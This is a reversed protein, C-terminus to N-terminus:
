GWFGFRVMTTRCATIKLKAQIDQGTVRILHTGLLADDVDEVSQVRSAPLELGDTIGKVRDRIIDVAVTQDVDEVRQLNSLM